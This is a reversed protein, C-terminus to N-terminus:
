SDITNVKVEALRLVQNQYLFGPRLEELVIGKEINKKSATEVAIMTKPDLLKDVCDIKSVQHHHFLQEFRRITMNQGQDFRKIFNIDKKRSNKFISKVPRYNHLVLVGSNLRDYIDILELLMSRKIEDHQQQRQDTSAALAKSLAKNDEQVTALAATLTDLTKKLLMSEAQIESKLGNLNTLLNSANIADSNVVSEITNQDLYTQFQELLQNKQAETIM